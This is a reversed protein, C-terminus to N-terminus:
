GGNRLIFHFHFYRGHGRLDDEPPTFHGRRTHSQPALDAQLCRRSEEDSPAGQSGDSMSSLSPKSIGVTGQEPKAIGTRGRTRQTQGHKIEAFSLSSDCIHAACLHSVSLFRMQKGPEHGSVKVRQSKLTAAGHKAADQLTVGRPAKSDQAPAESWSARRETFDCLCSSDAASYGATFVSQGPNHVSKM